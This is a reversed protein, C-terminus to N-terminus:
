DNSSAPRKGLIGRGPGSMGCSIMRDIRTSANPYSEGLGILVEPPANQQVGLIEHPAWVDGDMSPDGTPIRATAFEDFGTKM